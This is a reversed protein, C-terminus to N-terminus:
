PQIDRKAILIYNAPSIIVYIPLMQKHFTDQIDKGKILFMYFPLVTVSTLRSEVVQLLPIWLTASFTEAKTNRTVTIFEKPMGSLYKLITIM